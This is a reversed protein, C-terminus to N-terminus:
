DWRRHVEAVWEWGDYEDIQWKVAAPIEVIKLEAHVGWAREGLEHVVSVLVPDDRAIDRDSFLEGNVLIQPGFKQTSFRSERDEVTYDVRSRDLYLVRAKHSLGFGGHCSNIVVPRVGRLHRIIKEQETEEIM